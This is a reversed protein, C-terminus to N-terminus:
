MYSFGIYTVANEVNNLDLNAFGINGYFAGHFIRRCKDHVKLTERAMEKPAAIFWYYHNLSGDPDTDKMYLCGDYITYNESVGDAEFSYRPNNAFMTEQTIEYPLRPFKSNLVMTKVRSYVCFTSGFWTSNKSDKFSSFNKPFEYRDAYSAYSGIWPEYLLVDPEKGDDADKFNSYTMLGGYKTTPYYKCASTFKIDQWSWYVAKPSIYKITSPIHFPITRTTPPNIRRGCRTCINMLAGAAIYEVTRPLIDGTSGFIDYYPVNVLVRKNGDGDKVYVLGNEDNTYYPSRDTKSAEPTNLADKGIKIRNGCRSVPILNNIWKDVNDYTVLIPNETTSGDAYMKIRSPLYIYQDKISPGDQFNFICGNWLHELNSKESIGFHELPCYFTDWGGLSTVSDPLDISLLKNCQFISDANMFQVNGTDLDVKELNGCYSFAMYNITNVVPTAKIGKVYTNSQFM